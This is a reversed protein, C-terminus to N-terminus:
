HKTSASIHLSHLCPSTGLLLCKDDNGSPTVRYITVTLQGLAGAGPIVYSPIFLFARTRVLSATTSGNVEKLSIKKDLSPKKKKKGKCCCKICCCLMCMLILLLILALIAYIAWRPVVLSPQLHLCVNNPNYLLM